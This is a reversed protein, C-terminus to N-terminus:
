QHPPLRRLLTVLQDLERGAPLSKEVHHKADSDYRVLWNGSSGIILGNLSIKQSGQDMLRHLEPVSMFHSDPALLVEDHNLVRPVGAVETWLFGKTSSSYMGWSFSRNPSTRAGWCVFLVLLLLLIFQVV